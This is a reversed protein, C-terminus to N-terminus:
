KQLKERVDPHPAGTAKAIADRAVRLVHNDHGGLKNIHQYEDMDDHLQQLAFLLEPASAMLRANDPKNGPVNAIDVEGNHPGLGEPATIWFVHAGEAPDSETAKWPGPTHM